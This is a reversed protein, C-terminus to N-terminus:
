SPTPNNKQHTLRRREAGILATLQKREKKWRKVREEDTNKWENTPPNGQWDGIWTLRFKNPHAGGKGGRGRIRRVLGLYDLEVLSPTVQDKSVGYEIFDRHTVILKGNEQLGHHLHEIEIRSLALMANKSLARFAVSELLYLPVHMWPEGDYCHEPGIMLRAKRILQGTSRGKANHKHSTSSYGGNLSSREPTEM